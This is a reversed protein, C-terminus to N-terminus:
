HSDEKKNGAEEAVPLTFYFTSGCGKQSEAGVVGDLREVIRRVISLGLGHGQIQVQDLREFPTFLQKLGTESLGKGNDHVWFVIQPQQKHKLAQRIRLAIPGSASETVCPFLQSETDVASFGVAVHVPIGEEPQGGYKLANSLYNTWVEEVWPAHGIVDPWTDPIVIEARQKEVIDVLREMAEAVIEKMNLPGMAIEMKRIGALLLLNNIITNMKTAGRMIQQAFNNVDTTRQAEADVHLLEAYGAILGLPNKLDHAVTHAFADLEENREQLIDNARALDDLRRALETNAGQLQRQLFLLKLHTGVRVVVEQRKFPKTIYDVGGIEFIGIKDEEKELTGLFIIPINATQPLTKLHRCVEYGDMEPMRTDLLLLDFSQEQVIKLAEEGTTVTQVTHGRESLLKTLFRLNGPKDDVILIHGMPTTKQM